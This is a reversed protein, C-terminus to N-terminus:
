ATSEAFLTEVASDAVTATSVVGGTAVDNETFEEPDTTKIVMPSVAVKLANSAFAYEIDSEPEAMVTVEAEIEPSTIVRLRDLAIGVPAVTVNAYEVDPM